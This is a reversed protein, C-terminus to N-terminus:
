FDKSLKLWLVNDDSQKHLSLLNLFINKYYIVIGKSDRKARTPTSRYISFYNYDPLSLDWKTNTWTETLIKIDYEQLYDVFRQNKLKYNRKSALGRGNWSGIRLVSIEKHSTTEEIHILHAIDPKDREHRESDPQQNICDQKHVTETSFGTRTASYVNDQSQKTDGYM